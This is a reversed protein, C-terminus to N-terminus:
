GQPGAESEPSQVVLRPRRRVRVLTGTFLLLLVVLPSWLAVQAQLKQGSTMQPGCKEVFAQKSWWEPLTLGRRLVLDSLQRETQVVELARAAPHVLVYAPSTEPGAVALIPQGDACGFKQIWYRDNLERPWSDSDNQSMLM